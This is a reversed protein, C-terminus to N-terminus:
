RPTNRLTLARIVTPRIPGEGTVAGGAGYREWQPNAVYVLRDGIVAGLSPEGWAPSARELVRLGTVGLGDGSLSLAVIRLPPAGNQIAVLGDRDAILADIGDLMLGPPADMRFVHGTSREVAALGYRYDAVYLFQGSASVAMGQASFFTGAPLWAELAACGPRCRYVAGNQGDSVYVIGDPGVAVDGPTAGAPAPIRLAAEPHAPDVRVLGTFSAGTAPTQEIQAAAIWLRSHAADWAGGFLSGVRGELVVHGGDADIALLRRDVVSTAYLRHAGGDWILGEILHQGPDIEAYVESEGAPAGNADFSPALAAVPAEGVLAAIRARSAPSLTAGMAALRRLADLAAPADGTELAAAIRRRQLNASNPFAAATVGPNAIERVAEPWPIPAAAAASDCLLAAVAIVIRM